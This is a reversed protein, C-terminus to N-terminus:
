SGLAQLEPAVQASGEFFDSYNTKLAHGLVSFMVKLRGAFVFDILERTNLQVIRPQGNPGTIQATTGSLIAVVLRSSEDAKLGSLAGALLPALSSLETESDVGQLAALAPGITKVLQAMLELSHLAAYQTTNFQDTGITLTETKLM